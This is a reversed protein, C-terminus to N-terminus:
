HIGYLSSSPRFSKSQRENQLIKISSSSYIQNCENSLIHFHLLNKRMRKKIVRTVKRLYVSPEIDENADEFIFNIKSFENELDINDIVKWFPVPVCKTLARAFQTKGSEFKAIVVIFIIEECQETTLNQPFKKVIFKNELILKTILELSNTFLKQYDPAIYSTKEILPNYDFEDMSINSWNVNFQVDSPGDRYDLYLEIFYYHFLCKPRFPVFLVKTGPQQLMMTIKEDLTLMSCSLCDIISINSVKSLHHVLENSLFSSYSICFLTKTEILTDMIKNVYAHICKSINATNLKECAMLNERTVSSFKNRCM